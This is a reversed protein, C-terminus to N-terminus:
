GERRQRRSTSLRLPFNQRLLRRLRQAFRRGCLANMKLKNVKSAWRRSKETEKSRESELRAEGAAVRRKQETDGREKM